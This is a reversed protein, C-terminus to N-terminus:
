WLVCSTYTVFLPKPPRSTAHQGKSGSNAPEYGALAMLNKLAFFIRQVGEKPLSTFSHTGYRLKVAHLLDRFAIHFNPMKLSFHVPWKEGWM